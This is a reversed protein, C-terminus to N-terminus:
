VTFMSHCKCTCKLMSCSTHKFNQNSNAKACNSSLKSSKSSKSSKYVKDGKDSRGKKKSEVLPLTGVVKGVGTGSTRFLLSM